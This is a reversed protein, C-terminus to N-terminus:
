RHRNQPLAFAIVYDGRKTGFTGHGGAAIVVFQRGNEEYTMPTAQGGAPLHYSWVDKGTKIDFARIYDDHSAAIFVLGGATAIPGGMSPVGIHFHLYPSVGFPVRWIIKGDRMDVATLTGWPPKVCPIGLPSEFTKRRDGYPTGAMRSFDWGKYKGSKYEDMLRARPVLAVVMPLDNTNVVAIQRKPDFALGGWEVGGAYGPFELTGKTSPPTFIGESHYHKIRQRCWHEDWFTIGWADDPKIPGQRVLPPPAAPFPQTPSPKEGPVGDIPVKRETIPFVPKGTVRNFTFLMGTKTGQIVAPITKGGHVLEALVPQAAVDYDWLDHHILQHAWLLKGTDSDLAVVSDSWRDDGPREGGYFNPSASGTPVYVIHRKPDASLVGWANAAGTVSAGAPTWQRYVPNSPSRPIPDWSWMLKGTRADFARVIGLAVKVARNDGISSGLIVKDGVIAPPSTVLYNRWEPNGHMARVHHDLNITGGHGFGPCPKGTAADLALLRADLTPAFIRAHCLASPASKPDVWLSVGRSAADSYHVRPVHSDHRWRLKGTTANIAVVNTESTTFYLTDHYLIPTAEFTMHTKWVDDPFGKGTEGTRFIWAVKLRSANAPTIQKLPSYREGGANGGYHSWGPGSQALASTAAPLVLILALTPLIRM